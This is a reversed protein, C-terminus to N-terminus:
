WLRLYRFNFRLDEKLGNRVSLDRGTSFMLQNRQDIFTAATLLFKTTSQRDNQSVGGVETRGGTVHSLGFGFLTAPSYHWNLYGQVQILSDQKLTASAPGFNKNKGHLMVDATWEISFDRGVGAIGGAQFATKWRNEGINLPRNNDYSGTPVFLYAAIGFYNREARQIVTWLPAVLLLDGIGTTSGLSSLNGDASLRGVVPLVFNPSTVYDGVKIPHGMRLFVASSDLQANALALNGGAYLKSRKAHQAYILFLDVGPVPATWDGADSDIAKAPQQGILALLLIAAASAYVVRFLHNRM